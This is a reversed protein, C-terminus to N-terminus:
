IFLKKLEHLMLRHANQQRIAKAANTQTELIIGEYNQLLNEDHLRRLLGQSVKSDTLKTKQEASPLQLLEDRQQWATFMKVFYGDVFPFYLAAYLSWLNPSFNSADEQRVPWSFSTPITGKVRFANASSPTAEQKTEAEGGDKPPAVAPAADASEIEIPHPELIDLTIMESIIDQMKDDYSRESRVDTPKFIFENKLAKSLFTTDSILRERTIDRAIDIGGHTQKYVAM